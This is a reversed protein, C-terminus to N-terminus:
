ADMKEKLYNLYNLYEIGTAYDLELESVYNEKEEITKFAEFKILQENTMQRSSGVLRWYRIKFLYENCKKLINLCNKNDMPICQLEEELKKSFTEIKKDIYDNGYIM